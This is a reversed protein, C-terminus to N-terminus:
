EKEEAPQRLWHLHAAKAMTPTEIICIDAIGMASLQEIITTRQRSLLKTIFDALQEDTMSRIFDGNTM